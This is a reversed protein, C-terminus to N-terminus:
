RKASSGRMRPWSYRGSPQSSGALPGDDRSSAHLLPSDSGVFDGSGGTSRGDLLAGAVDPVPAVRLCGSVLFRLSSSLTIISASSSIPDQPTGGWSMALHTLM